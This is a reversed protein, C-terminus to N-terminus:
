ESPVVVVDPEVRLLLRQEGPARYPYVDQGLYKKALKDIHAEAEPGEVFDTVHGRIEYNAYLNDPPSTSITVRPDRRLNREKRRGLATNLLVTNGDVDAWVPSVQPTGDEMLTAMHWFNPAELAARAQDNITAM